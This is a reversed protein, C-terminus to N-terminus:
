MKDARMDARMRQSRGFVRGLIVPRHWTRRRRDKRGRAFEPVPRILILAAQRERFEFPFGARNRRARMQQRQFFVGPGFSHKQDCIFRTREEIRFFLLAM